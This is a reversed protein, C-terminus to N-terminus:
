IRKTLTDYCFGSSCIRGDPKRTVIQINLKLQLLTHIESAYRSHYETAKM